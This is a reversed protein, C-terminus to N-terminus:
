VELRPRANHPATTRKKDFKYFRVNGSGRVFGAFEVPLWGVNRFKVEIIDGVKVKALGSDLANSANRNRTTERSQKNHNRIAAAADQATALEQATAEGVKIAADMSITTIATGNDPVAECVTQKLQRALGYSQAFARIEQNGRHAVRVRIVVGIEKQAGSISEIRDGVKIAM